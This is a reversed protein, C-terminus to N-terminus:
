RAHERERVRELVFRVSSVVLAPEETAFDHVTHMSVVHLGDSTRAFWEDQGKRKLRRAEPDYCSWSHAPCPRMGTLVALPLDPLPQLGHVQGAAEIGMFMKLEPWYAPPIRALSARVTDSLVVRSNAAHWRSWLTEDSGDVLVLGVVQDPHMSTYLRAFLGGASHGVLIVPGKQGLADLLAHLEGVILQPTRPMPGPTSRGLGARSYAIVHSLRGLESMVGKWAEAGENLGSELVITPSGAGVQVVEVRRTGVSVVSAEQAALSAAAIGHALVGLRLLLRPPM